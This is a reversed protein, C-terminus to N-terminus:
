AASVASQQRAPAAGHRVIVALNSSEDAYYGPPLGREASSIVAPETAIEGPRAEAALTQAVRMVRPSLMPDDDASYGPVLAVVNGSPVEASQNVDATQDEVVSIAAVLAADVTDFRALIGKGTHKIEIGGAEEVVARVLRNHHDLASSDDTGRLESAFYVERPATFDASEDEPKPKLLPMRWARWASELTDGAPSGSLFEAMAARGGDQLRWGTDRDGLDNRHNVYADIAPQPLKCESLGFALLREQALLNLQSTASLHSVAGAMVLAIGRRTMPDDAQDAALPRVREAAFRAVMLRQLKLGDSEDVEDPPTGWTNDGKADGGQSSDPASSEFSPESREPAPASQDQKEPQKADAPSIEQAIEDEAATRQHASERRSAAEDRKAQDATAPAKTENAAPQMKEKTPLDSKNVRVQMDDPEKEAIEETVDLDGRQRKVEQMTREAEAAQRSPRKPRIAKPSRSIQRAIMATSQQVPKVATTSWMSMIFRKFSGGVRFFAFFGLMFMAITTFTLITSITEPALTVGLDDIHSLMWSLVGTVVAAAGMSLFSAIIARTLLDAIYQGFDVSQMRVPTKAAPKANAAAQQRMRAIEAPTPPVRVMSKLKPSAYITVTEARNSEPFY